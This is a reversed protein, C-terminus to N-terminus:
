NYFKCSSNTKNQIIINTIKLMDKTRKYNEIESLHIKRNKNFTEKVEPWFINNFKDFINKCAINPDISHQEKYFKHLTYTYFYDMKDDEEDDEDEIDNWELLGKLHESKKKYKEKDNITDRLLNKQKESYNSHNVLDMLLSEPSSSNM